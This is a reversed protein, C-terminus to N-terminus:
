AGDGDNRSSFFFNHPHPLTDEPFKHKRFVDHYFELKQNHEQKEEDTAQRCKRWWIGKDSHYMFLDDWMGNKTLIDKFFPKCGPNEAWFPTLWYDLEQMEAPSDKNSSVPLDRWEELQGYFIEVAGRSAIAARKIYESAKDYKGSKYFDLAFLICTWAGNTRDEKAIYTTLKNGYGLVSLLSLYYRGGWSDSDGNLVRWYRNLRKKALKFDGSNMAVKAGWFLLDPWFFFDTPELTVLKHHGWNKDKNGIIKEFAKITYNFDDSLQNAGDQALEVIDDFADPVQESTNFIWSDWANQFLYDPALFCLFIAVTYMNHPTTNVLTHFAALGEEHRDDSSTYRDPIIDQIAQKLRVGNENLLLGYEGQSSAPAISGIDSTNLAFNNERSLIQPDLREEVTTNRYYLASTATLFNTLEANFGFDSKLLSELKKDVADFGPVYEPTSWPLSAIWHNYSNFGNAKAFCEKFKLPKVRFDYKDHLRSSAQNTLANLQTKSYITTM